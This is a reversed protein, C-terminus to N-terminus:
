HGCSKQEILRMKILDVFHDPATVKVMPGFSLIRIVIEMEDEKDYNITVRYIDEDIKEATKEFHAFHLLVRELAKRKDTVEFIVRRMKPKTCNIHNISFPKKYPKCSIIRGLNITSNFRKEFSILRFKDDKESYELYEPLVVRSIVKGQKSLIAIELPYTNRIADLILRFNKVYTEDTYNDGDMYKDFVIVDSPLFLPEIGPFDFDIDGFLKIRPDCAVAKLWQKQINSLPLMPTNKIPTTGDSRILQWREEKIADPIYILSETFAHKEVIKRIGEDSVPHVVAEKLVAAITNYYASYIENFIM